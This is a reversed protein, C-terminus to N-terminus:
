TNGLMDIFTKFIDGIQDETIAEFNFIIVIVILVAVSVGGILFLM